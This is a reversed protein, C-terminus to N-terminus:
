SYSFYFLSLFGKKAFFCLNAWSGPSSGVWGCLFGSGAWWARMYKGSLSESAHMKEVKGSPDNKGALMCKRRNESTHMKGDKEALM